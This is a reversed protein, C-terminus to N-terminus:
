NAPPSVDTATAAIPSIASSNELRMSELTIVERYCDEGLASRLFEGQLPALVTRLVDVADNYAAPQSEKEPLCGQIVTAFLRRVPQTLDALGYKDLLTTLPLLLNTVVKSGDFPHKSSGTELRQSTADLLQTAQEVAGLILCEELLDFYEHCGPEFLAESYVYDYDNQLYYPAFAIRSGKRQISALCRAKADLRAQDLRARGWAKFLVRLPESELYSPFLEVVQQFTEFCCHAAFHEFRRCTLSPEPCSSSYWCFLLDSVV